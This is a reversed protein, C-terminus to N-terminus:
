SVYMHVCLQQSMLDHILKAGGVEVEAGHM